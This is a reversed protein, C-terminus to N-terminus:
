LHGLLGAPGASTNRVAIRLTNSGARLAAALDFYRAQRWSDAVRASGGLYTDNLWVDVTDDGTVVLQADTYPGAPATFVRRLYRTAAPASRVPDGEPYWIWHAAGLAVPAAAAVPTAATAPAAVTLTLVTVITAALASLRKAAM